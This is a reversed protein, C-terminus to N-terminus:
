SQLTEFPQSKSKPLLCRACLCGLQTIAEHKTYVRCPLTLEAWVAHAQQKWAGPGGEERIHVATSLLLSLKTTVEADLHKVRGIQNWISNTNAALDRPQCLSILFFGIHWFSFHLLFNEQRLCAGYISWSHGKECLYVESFFCVWQVNVNSANQLLNGLSKTIYVNWQKICYTEKLYRSALSVYVWYQKPM